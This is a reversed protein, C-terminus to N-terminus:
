THLIRSRIIEFCKQSVQELSSFEDPNLWIGEKDRKFWTLQRKAYNRSKQKINEIAEDLSCNGELYDAMEKYGLAQMATSDRRVGSDLIRKVENELGLSIMKDVRLNIREYLSQRDRTFYIRVSNYPEPFSKSKKNYDSIKEGTAHYYELARIVRKVNNPHIADASEKDTKELLSHIYEAGEKQLLDNMKKRYTEDKSANPSFDIGKFLSDAYLGTGGVVLATKGRSALEEVIKSAREVYDCVSFPENADLIDIMHHVIGQKEEETVKATGIDMGRYIQMSDCSIIETNLKKALLVSTETKGVGTPGAILVANPKKM